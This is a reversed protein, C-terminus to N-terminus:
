LEEKQAAAGQQRALQAYACAHACLQGVTSAASFGAPPAADGCGDAWTVECMAVSGSDVVDQCPTGCLDPVDRLGAQLAALQEANTRMTELSAALKENQLDMRHASEFSLVAEALRGQQAQATGIGLKVEGFYESNTVAAAYFAAISEAPRGLKVLYRAQRPPFTPRPPPPPPETFYSSITTTTCHLLLLDHHHRPPARALNLPPRADSPDAEMAARFSAEAEAAEGFSSHAIGLNLHAQSRLPSRSSIPCARAHAHTNHRAMVM